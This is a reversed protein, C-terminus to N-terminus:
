GNTEQIDFFDEVLKNPGSDGQLAKLIRYSRFEPDPADEAIAEALERDNAKREAQKASQQRKYKENQVSYDFIRSPPVISPVLPPSEHGEGEPTDGAEKSRIKLYKFGPGDDLDNITADHSVEVRFGTGTDTLQPRLANLVDAAGAAALLDAHTGTRKPIEIRNM